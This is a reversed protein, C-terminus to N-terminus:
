LIVTNTKESNLAWSNVMNDYATTVESTPAM